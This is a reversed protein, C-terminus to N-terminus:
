FWPFLPFDKCKILDWCLISCSLIFHQFEANLAGPELSIVTTTMNPDTFIYITATSANLFFSLRSSVWNVILISPKRLKM